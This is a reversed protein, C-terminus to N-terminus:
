RTKPSNLNRKALELNRAVLVEVQNVSENVASLVKAPPENGSKSQSKSEDTHLKRLIPM